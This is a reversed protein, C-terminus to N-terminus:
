RSFEYGGRPVVIELFDHAAVICSVGRNAGLAERTEEGVKSAPSLHNLVLVKAQVKSAFSGAMAATAHGRARAVQFSFCINLIYTEHSTLGLCPSLFGVSYNRLSVSIERNVCTAEHVLVDVNECLKAMPPFIGCNDGILAFKRGLRRGPLVVDDPEVLITSDDDRPVPFGHKLLNYKPGPKVGMEIAKEPDILLPPDMEEVSYGFTQVSPVHKVEAARITLEKLGGSSYENPLRARAKRKKGDPDMPKKLTEKVFDETLRTAESLVWVGDPRMPVRERQISPLIANFEPYAATFPNPIGSKGKRRGGVRSETRGGTLEHVLIPLDFRSCCLALNMIIFNYLGEPGYIKLPEKESVQTGARGHINQINKASQNMHLLLTPLGMIHDAHMHTIFIDTVDATALTSFHLQRQFGEGVDFLLSRGGFRIVTAPSNRSISPASSGSGLFAIHMGTDLARLRCEVSDEWREVHGRKSTEHLVFDSVCSRLLVSNRIGKMERNGIKSAPLQFLSRASDQAICRSVVNQSGKWIVQESSQTRPVSGRNPHADSQSWRQGHRGKAMEGRRKKVYNSENHRGAEENELSLALHDERWPTSSTRHRRRTNCILAASQRSGIVQSSIRRAGGGRILM